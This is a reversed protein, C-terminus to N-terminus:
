IFDEKESKTIHTEEPLLYKDKAYDMYLQLEEDPITDKPIVLHTEMMLDPLQRTCFPIFRIGPFSQYRYILRSSFGVFSSSYLMHFFEKMDVTDYVQCPVHEAAAKQLILANFDEMIDLLLLQQDYLDTIFINKRSALPHREDLVLYVPEQRVKQLSVLKKPIPALMFAIDAKQAILYSPLDSNAKEEYHLHADPNRKKYESFLDVDCSLAFGHFAAIKLVRNHRINDIALLLEHYSAAIKSFHTYLAAAEETPIVGSTNREFLLFGLEEEMRSVSKSLGQQSIYLNKSAKTINLDKYLQIFYQIQRLEM